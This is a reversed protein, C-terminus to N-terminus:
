KDINGQSSRYLLLASSRGRVASGSENRSILDQRATTKGARRSVRLWFVCSRDPVMRSGSVSGSIPPHGRPNMPIYCFRSRTFLAYVPGFPVLHSEFSARFAESRILLGCTRTRGLADWKEQM